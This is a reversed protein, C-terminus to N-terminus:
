IGDNGELETLLGDVVAHFRRLQVIDLKGVLAELRRSKSRAGLYAARYQLKQYIEDTMPEIHLSHWIDTGRFRGSEKEVLQGETLRWYKPTEGVIETRYGNFEGYETTDVFVKDGIKFESM